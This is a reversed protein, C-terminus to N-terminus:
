EARVRCVVAQCRSVAPVPVPHNVFSESGGSEYAIAHLGVMQDGNTLEAIGDDFDQM